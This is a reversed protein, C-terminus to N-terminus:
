AQQSMLYLLFKKVRVQFLSPQKTFRELYEKDKKLINRIKQGSYKGSPMTVDLFKKASAGDLPKTDEIHRVPSGAKEIAYDRLIEWVRTTLLDKSEEEILNITDFAFAQAREEPSPIPPALAEAVGNSPALSLNVEAIAETDSDTM